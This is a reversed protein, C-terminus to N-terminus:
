AKALNHDLKIFLDFHPPTFHGYPGRRWFGQSQYMNIVFACVLRLLMWNSQDVGEDNKKLFIIVEISGERM